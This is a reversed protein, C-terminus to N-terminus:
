NIINFEGEDENWRIRISEGPSLVITPNGDITEALIVDPQITLNATSTIVNKFIWDQGDAGAPLTADSDASIDAYYGTATADATFDTTETVWAGVGSVIKGDIYTVDNETVTVGSTNILTVNKLGPDITNNDGNIYIFESDGNVTNDEGFVEVYNSSPHVINNKGNVNQNSNKYNNGDKQTGGTNSGGTGPTTEGTYVSEGYNNPLVETSSGDLGGTSPTFADVDTLYLFTCKTLTGGTPNYNAIEQLRWYANSFWYLKDFSWSRFDSPRVNFWGTAVKSDESTYQNIMESYYKNVLNNNTYSIAQTNSDYYIENVLGFNIDETWTWPDDVHGAYPYQTYPTPTPAQFIQLYDVHNWVEGDKLGGYYLIRINHGVPKALGQDDLQVITPLVRTKNPPASIPTPSFIIETKETKTVFDNENTLYRDGYIRQYTKEYRQNLEDKDQKYTFVYEAADLKGMPIVELDQSQDLKGQINVIDGTLFEDRPEILYNKPNDPDIDMWLNFMKVISMFFDKQKIQKPIVKSIKMTSGQAPFQNLAKNYFAGVSCTVQATGPYYAGGSDIFCKTNDNNLGQYRAKWEITIEDGSILYANNLTVLYQKPDGNVGSRGVLIAANPDNTQSYRTSQVGDLYDTDPYTPSATTSRAGSTYTPTGQYDSVTLFFPVGIIPTGNKCVYLGGQLDSVQAVAPAGGSPTFTAGIEVLGNIDYYGDYAASLITYKGNTTDYLGSPDSVDAGFEIVDLSTFWPPSIGNSTTTGTSQFTPTNASFELATIEASTLQLSEPNSPIILHKFYSSDFFSSTYSYGHAAFIADIYEKVYIACGMHYYYFDVLDTVLGYDILPYVYGTGYAFPVFGASDSNYVQTDWSDAQIDKTFPHDWEDLIDTMGSDDLYKDGMDRFINAVAGYLVMCITYDKTDKSKYSKVHVYGELITEGNIEYRMESKEDVAFENSRSNIMYIAKLVKKLEKTLPVEITKSYTAKRTDPKSIDTISKTLSANLSKSLPINYNEIYLRETM